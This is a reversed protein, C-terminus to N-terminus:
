DNKNAVKFHCKQVKLYRLVSVLCMHALVIIYTYYLICICLFVSIVCICPSLGHDSTQHEKLYQKLHAKFIYYTSSKELTLSLSIWYKLNKILLVALGFIFVFLM